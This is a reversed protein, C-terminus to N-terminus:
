TPPTVLLTDHAGPSQASSGGARRCSNPKAVPLEAAAHPVCRPQLLGVEEEAKEEEQLAAALWINVRLLTAIGISCARAPKIRHSNCDLQLRAKIAGAM